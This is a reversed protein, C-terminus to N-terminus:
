APSAPAAADRAARMGLAVFLLAGCPGLVTARPSLTGRRREDFGAVADAADIVVGLAAVPTLAAAPAGLLAGALALERSGFLRTVFRDARQPDIGFTRATHDPAVWSGLGILARTVGLVHRASPMERVYVVNM